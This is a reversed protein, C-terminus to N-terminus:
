PIMEFPEQGVRTAESIDAPTSEDGGVWSTKSWGSETTSIQDVWGDPWFCRAAGNVVEWRGESLGAVTSWARGSSELTIYLFSGDPEQNLRWVGVFGARPPEQRAARSSFVPHAHANNPPFAQHQCGEADRSIEHTWGNELFVLARGERLRWFGRLGKAPSSSSGRTSVARGGRFLVLDFLQGAEDSVQWVGEAEEASLFQAPHPPSSQASGREEQEQSLRPPAPPPSCAALIGLGCLIACAKLHPLRAPPM